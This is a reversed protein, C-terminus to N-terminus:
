QVAAAPLCCTFLSGNPTNEACVVRGGMENALRQALSLGLGHGEVNTKSRSQDARYFREFIKDREALPIGPGEDAVAICVEGGKVESSVTITSKEPSYKIANDLLIGVVEVISDYHGVVKQPKVSNDVAISKQQALPVLRTMAESVAEDIAVTEKPLEQQSALLLLRDTLTRLRDVEELTSKLTQEHDKATAKKDRLGVEIETQMVALPTRLEHAADSAFRAQAEHAQEIPRLTRKALLYSLATGGVLVAVNFIAISVILRGTSDNIREQRANTMMSDDNVFLRAEGPRMPGLARNFESTAVEYLVASFLLSLLMMLLMYWATLRWTASEFLNLRKAEGGM